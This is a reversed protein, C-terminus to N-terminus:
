GEKARPHAKDYVDMLKDVTLHTYRQTTSLSAHGLMEQISRLDAGADLMHSAFTHRIVHPSVQKAVAAALSWMYVVRRISRSRMNDGRNNLFLPESCYISDNIGRSKLYVSVADLARRGVPVVRQKSGKGMVRIFGSAMDVDSCIMAEVEGVRIGTSYLLELIARDRLDSITEILDFMEDHSLFVPLMERKKLSRVHGFPNMALGTQKMMFDYFGKISSLKRNITTRTYQTHLKLMYSRVMHRDPIDVQRDKLFATLHRIDNLYARYTERSLGKQDLLEMSYRNLLVIYDYEM